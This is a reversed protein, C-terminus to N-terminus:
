NQLKVVENGPVGQGAPNRTDTKGQGYCHCWNKSDIKTGPGPSTPLFYIVAFSTNM